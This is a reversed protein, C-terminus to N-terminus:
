LRVAFVNISIILSLIGGAVVIILLQQVAQLANVSSAICV